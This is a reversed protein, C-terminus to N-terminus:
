KESPQPRQSEDTNSPVRDRSANVPRSQKKLERLQTKQDTTLINKMRVMTGFHLRKVESEIALLKDLQAVALKEDVREQKLLGDLAESEASQQWQLDTFKAMTKQMEERIATQQETTLNLAKQNQM